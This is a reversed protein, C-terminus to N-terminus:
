QPLQSYDSNYKLDETITLTLENLQYQSLEYLIEILPKSLLCSTISLSQLNPFFINVKNDQYFIDKYILDCSISNDDDVHIFKISSTLSSSNLILPFLISSFTM